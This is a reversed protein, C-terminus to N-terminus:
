RTFREMTSSISDTEPPVSNSVSFPTSSFIGTERRRTEARFFASPRYSPMEHPEPQHGTQLKAALQFALQNSAISDLRISPRNEFRRKTKWVLATARTKLHKATKTDLFDGTTAVLPKWSKEGGQKKVSGGCRQPSFGREKRSQYFAKCCLGEISPKKVGNQPRMSFPSRQPM